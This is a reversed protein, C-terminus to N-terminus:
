MVVSSPRTPELRPMAGSRPWCAPWCGSPPLASGRCVPANAYALAAGLLAAGDHWATLAPRTLAWVAIVAGLLCLFVAVQWGWQLNALHGPYLALFVLTAIMASRGRTTTGFSARAFAFVLAASAVLLLWSVIDTLWPDGHSLSATVLLVAYAATHIHGGNFGLFASHLLTGDRAATLMPVLDLHDWLMMPVRWALTMWLLAAALLVFLGVPLYRLRM